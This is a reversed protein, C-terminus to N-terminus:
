GEGALMAPEAEGFDMSMDFFPISLHHQCGLIRIFIRTFNGGGRFVSMGLLVRGGTMNPGSTEDSTGGADFV